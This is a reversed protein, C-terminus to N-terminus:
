RRLAELAARTRVLQDHAARVREKTGRLDREADSQAATARDEATRLDRLQRELARVDQRRQKREERAERVRRGLEDAERQLREAAAEAERVALEAARISEPQDHGPAEHGRAPGRTAARRAGRTGTPTAVAGSLDVPGLGTYSLGTTLRGARVAGGADPDVIAAELTAELERWGAESVSQGADAALDRAESLLAGLVTRREASLRRLDAAALEGQASRMASGLELLHAVRDPRERALLNVLWAGLTPRRLTKVAAALERDGDRRAEAARADRATTFETPRLGYLDDSVTDLDVVVDQGRTALVM